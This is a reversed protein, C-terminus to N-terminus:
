RRHRMEIDQEVVRKLTNALTRDNCVAWVVDTQEGGAADRPGILLSKEEHSVVRFLKM